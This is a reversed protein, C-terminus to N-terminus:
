LFMEMFEAKKNVLERDYKHIFIPKMILEDFRRFCNKCSNFNKRRTTMSERNHIGSERMMNPHLFEEYHDVTENVSGKSRSSKKEKDKTQDATKNINGTVPGAAPVKPRQANGGKSFFPKNEGDEAELVSQKSELEKQLNQAQDEGLDSDGIMQEIIEDESLKPLLLKQVLSMTSGFILTTSVVLTLATTEIIELKEEVTIIGSLRLM